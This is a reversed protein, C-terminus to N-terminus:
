GGFDSKGAQQPQHDGYVRHHGQRRLCDAHGTRGARLVPAGAGSLGPPQGVEVAEDATFVTDGAPRPIGCEELIADFKERDEAADISEIPTGLVNVNADKLYKTLKIATQGGFQVIVGDPKEVDLVGQVDEPTLRSSICGTPPISTRLCPRRITTSSSRRMDGSGCRGCRTSRATTLSM